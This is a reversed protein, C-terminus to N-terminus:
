LAAVLLALGYDSAFDLLMTGFATTNLRGGAFVRKMHAWARVWFLVRQATCWGAREIAWNIGHSAALLFISVVKSDPQGNIAVTEDFALTLGFRLFAKQLGEPFS